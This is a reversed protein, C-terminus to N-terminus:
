EALGAILAQGSSAGIRTAGAEIMKLADETTRIGGAAKLGTTPKISKRMLVIDEVSTSRPLMASFGTSSKVIDVGNEEALQRAKVIQDETLLPTEIILKLLAGKEHCAKAVGALEQQVIEYKESKLASVNMVLDIEEAGHEIAEETACIKVEPADMGLPFSIVTCVKTASGKLAAAATKVLTPLICVSAFGGKIADKCFDTIFEETMGPKLNTQDIYKALEAKTM